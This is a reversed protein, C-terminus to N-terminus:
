RPLQNNTKAWVGRTETHTTRYDQHVPGTYTHHHIDPAAKKARSILGGLATLLMAGGAFPAIIIWAFRELGPISVMALGKFLLWAACGLGTAGAGVGISAVALGAAWQPVIRSDPQPVPPTDGIRPGDKHSPITPDEVRIATPQETTAQDLALSFANAIRDIRQDDMAPAPQPQIPDTLHTNM